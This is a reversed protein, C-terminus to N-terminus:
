KVTPSKLGLRRGLEHVKGVIRDEVEPKYPGPLDYFYMSEVVEYGKEPAMRASPIYSCLDNTYGAVWVKGGLERKLRLSYDTVVEGALGVLTLDGIRIVQVTYPYESALKGDREYRAIMREAHRARYINKDQLRSQFEQKTPVAEFPLTVGGIISKVQGDIPALAGKLTVNVARALVEGHERAIELQSRPAPNIDAGCGIVFMAMAGPHDKEIAEQAFGAYDGSLQYFEGTLTTNHCAYGFLVGRLRDDTSRVALVPVERDAVGEPNVGIVIVGNKLQRRNMAFAATGVGYTLKAPSLDKISEGIVKILITKLQSTYEEVAKSQAADLNYAGALSGALVPGTHTHSSNFFIQERKLGYSKRAHEAVETSLAGPLGLLDTTVLVVRGGRPDEITLAKAYLEHIKGESPKSRSAYGAMWVPKEPTIIARAIGAKIPKPAGAQPAPAEQWSLILGAVLILLFRRFHQTFL